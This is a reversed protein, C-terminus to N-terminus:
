GEIYPRFEMETMLGLKNCIIDEVVEAIEGIHEMDWDVNKGALKCLLDHCANDVEDLQETQRETLEPM